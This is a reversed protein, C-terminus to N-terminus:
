SATVEIGPLKSLLSLEQELGSSRWKSRSGVVSSPSLQSEYITRQNDYTCMCMCAHTHGGGSCVLYVFIQRKFSRYNGM